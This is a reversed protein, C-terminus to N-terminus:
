KKKIRKGKWVCVSVLQKYDANLEVKRMEGRVAKLLLLSGLLAGPLCVM